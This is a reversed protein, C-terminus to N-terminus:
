PKPAAPTKQAELQSRLYAARAEALSAACFGYTAEAAYDRCADEREGAFRSQDHAIEQLKASPNKASNLAKVSSVLELEAQNRSREYAKVQKELAAKSPGWLGGPSAQCDADKFVCASTAAPVLVAGHLVDFTFPCAPAQVEYRPAGEPRGLNKTPIPASGVVSIECAQSANSIAEGPLTLKQIQLEGGSRSFLLVGSVGNLALAQGSIEASMRAVSKHPKVTKKIAAAPANGGPQMPDVAGPLALQAQAQGIGLGLLLIAAARLFLM